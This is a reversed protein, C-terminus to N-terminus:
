DSQAWDFYKEDGLKRPFLLQKLLFIFACLISAGGSGIYAWGLVPNKGGMRTTTAMVISKTGDFSLVPFNNQVILTYTGAELTEPSEIRRFLKKFTPLAATRMWVVFPESEVDATVIGPMKKDPLTFMGRDSPIAVHDSSLVVEVGNPDLMRISDNFTSWAGLGCPKYFFEITKRDDLSIVPDCDSLDGHKDIVEGDLQTESRSLAYRRHNQYFSTLKYYVFVPTDMNEEVNITVNCLSPTAGCNEAYEAEYTQAKDTAVLIVGIAALLLGSLLLFLIVSLPLLLPQWQKMTQQKLSDGLLFNVVRAGREKMKKLTPNTKSEKANVTAPESSDKKGTGSKPTSTATTTATTTATATTSTTTSTTPTSATSATEMKAGDDPDSNISM